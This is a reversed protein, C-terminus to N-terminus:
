AKAHGLEKLSPVFFDPAIDVDAVGEPNYQSLDTHGHQALVEDDIFFNGSTSPSPSTLVLYAADAMIEPSRLHLTEYMQGEFEYMAATAIATRPWLANVAIRDSFEGAMGLVCMSMGYKAISYAVHPAFWREELHLPPSIMLVHPATSKLLHPVAKQTFLYTGRVNVGHMLDFRKVPTEQTGTLRVASANNIVIDIGGFAEVTRAVAEEVQAEDRIDCQLALAQGGAKNIEDAASHITGELKPHPTATKAAIAVNAGDRAARRAIALGIGRSGGSILLTRGNLDTM